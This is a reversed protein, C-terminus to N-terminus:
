KEKRSRTTYVCMECGIDCKLRPDYHQLCCYEATRPRCKPCYPGLREGTQPDEHFAFCLTPQKCTVCQRPSREM